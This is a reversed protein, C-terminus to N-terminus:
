CNPALKAATFVSWGRIRGAVSMNPTAATFLECPVPMPRTMIRGALLRNHIKVHLGRCRQMDQLQAKSM